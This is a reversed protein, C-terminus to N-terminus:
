ASESEHEAPASADYPPAFGDCNDDELECGRLCDAIKHLCDEGVTRSSWIHPGKLADWRTAVLKGRNEAEYRLQEPPKWEYELRWFLSCPTNFTLSARYGPCSIELRINVPELDIDEEGDEGAEYLSGYRVWWDLMTQIVDGLNLPEGNAVLWGNRPLSELNYDLQEWKRVQKRALTANSLREVTEHAEALEGDYLVALLLATADEPGM